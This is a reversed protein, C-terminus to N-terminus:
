ALRDRLTRLPGLPYDPFAVHNPFDIGDRPLTGRYRSQAEDATLLAKNVFTLELVSPLGSSGILPACNNGHLHTIVFSDSVRRLLEECEGGRSELDHVELAIGAINRADALIDDLVQYEAGEVDIKVFLMDSASWNTRLANWRTTTSTEERGIMKMVFVRKRTRFFALFRVLTGSAACCDKWAARASRRNGRLLRVGVNALSKVARTLFELAGVSGDVAVLRMARNMALFEAEFSWDTEIGIGVLVTTQAFVRAPIVYGGDWHRGVRILVDVECPWM